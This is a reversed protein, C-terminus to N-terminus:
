RIRPVPMEALKALQAQVERRHHRENRLGLLGLGLMSAAYPAALLGVLLNEPRGLFGKLASSSSPLRHEALYFDVLEQLQEASSHRAPQPEVHVQNDYIGFVKHLGFEYDAAKHRFREAERHAAARNYRVLEWGVVRLADRQLRWEAPLAVVNNLSSM